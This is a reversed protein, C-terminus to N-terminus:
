SEGHLRGATQNPPDGGGRREPIMPTYLGHQEIHQQVRPDVLGAISQGEARRQRIATSSVDATHADILVIMTEASPTLPPRVM